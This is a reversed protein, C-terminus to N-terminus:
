HRLRAHQGASPTQHTSETRDRSGKRDASWIRQAEANGVIIRHRTQEITAWPSRVTMATGIEAARRVNEYVVFCAHSGEPRQKVLNRVVEATMATDFSNFIMAIVPGNPLDFTLANGLLPRVDRCLQAPANFRAVNREATEHLGPAYEVGRIQRVPYLSALLLLKGKGSGVDVFTFDKLQDGLETEFRRMTAHFNKEWLPRYVTNGREADGASVGVATLQTEGATDTGYSADFARNVRDQRRQRFQFLKWALRDELWAVKGPAMAFNRVIRALRGIM